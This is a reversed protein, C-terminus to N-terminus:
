VSLFIAIVVAIAQTAVRWFLPFKKQKTLYQVKEGHIKHHIATIKNPFVLNLVTLGDPIIAAAAYVYTLVDNGFFLFTLLLGASLDIFIKAADSVNVRGEKKIRQSFEKTLEYEIHPFFDLFYHSFFAAIVAVFPSSFLSGIAVGFIIHVLLIM